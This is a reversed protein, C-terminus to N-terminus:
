NIGMVFLDDCLDGITVNFDYVGILDRPVKQLSDKYLQSTTRTAQWSMHGAKFVALPVKASDVKAIIKQAAAQTIANHLAMM